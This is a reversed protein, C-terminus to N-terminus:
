SVMIEPVSVRPHRTASIDPWPNLARKPHATIYNTLSPVM